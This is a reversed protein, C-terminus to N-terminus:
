QSGMYGLANQGIQGQITSQVQYGLFYQNGLLPKASVTASTVRYLQAQQWPISNRFSPPFEIAQWNAASRMQHFFRQGITIDHPEYTGVLGRGNVGTSISRPVPNTFDENYKPLYELPSPMYDNDSMYGPLQPGTGTASHAGTRGTGKALKPQPGRAPGRMINVYTWNPRGFMPDTQQQSPM